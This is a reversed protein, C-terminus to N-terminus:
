APYSGDEVTFVNDICEMGIMNPFMWIKRLSEFGVVQGEMIESVYRSKINRSGGNGNSTLKANSMFGYLSSPVMNVEPGQGNSLPGSVADKEKVVNDLVEDLNVEMGHVLPEFFIYRYISM